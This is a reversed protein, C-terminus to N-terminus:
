QMRFLLKQMEVGIRGTRIAVLSRPVFGVADLVTSGELSSLLAGSAICLGAIMSDKWPNRENTRLRDIKPAEIKAIMTDSIAFGSSSLGFARKLRSVTRVSRPIAQSSKMRASPMTAADILRIDYWRSCGVALKRICFQSRKPSRAENTICIDIIVANKNRESTRTAYVPATPHTATANVETAAAKARTESTTCNTYTTWDSEQHSALPSIILWCTLRFAAV